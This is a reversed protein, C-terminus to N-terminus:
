LAPAIPSMIFRVEGFPFGLLVMFGNQLGTLTKACFTQQPDLDLELALSNSANVAFLGNHLNMFEGVSAKVYEDNDSFAEQAYRSAVAIFGAKDTELATFISVAGRVQQVALERAVFPEEPRRAPLLSFDDGIFRIVNKLLLSIYDAYLDPMPARDLQYYNKILERAAAAKEDSCEDCTLRANQKYSLLAQQFQENTMAGSDVLAQGLALYGPKQAALLEDVQGATMYGLEVALDGIRIDRTAQIRHLEDVQAATLYGAHIALVGLKVHVSSQLELAKNLQAPTVLRHNLLYSGFFHTFM